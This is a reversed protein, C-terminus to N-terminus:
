FGFVQSLFFHLIAPPTISTGIHMTSSRSWKFHQVFKAWFANRTIPSRLLTSGGTSTRGCMQKSCCNFAVESNDHTVCPLWMNNKPSMCKLCQVLRVLPSRPQLDFIWPNPYSSYVCSLSFIFCTGDAFMSLLEPILIARILYGRAKILM